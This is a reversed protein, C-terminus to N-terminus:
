SLIMMQSNALNVSTIVPYIGQPIFELKAIYLAYLISSLVGEQALGKFIARKEDVDGYKLTLIRLSVLNYVFNLFLEPVGEEKLKQILIEPLVNDYAGKIDISLVAVVANEDFANLIEANLLTLNDLCSKGRRFGFQRNPLKQHHELWSCLRLNLMRELTKLLCFALSIPRVKKGDSKPIFYVLHERWENPFTGTLFIENYLALLLKRLKEPFRKIIQYDIGDIGPSSNTNGKDIAVELEELLFPQDLFPDGIENYFDPKALPVWAPCLQEIAINVNKILYNKQTSTQQVQLIGGEKTNKLLFSFRQDM